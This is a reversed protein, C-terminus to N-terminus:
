GRRRRRQRRGRQRGRRRECVVNVIDFLLLPLGGRFASAAVVSAAPPASAATVDSVM